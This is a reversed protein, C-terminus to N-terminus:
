TGLVVQIIKERQNFQRLFIIGRDTVGANPDSVYYRGEFGSGVGISHSGPARMTLSGTAQHQYGGGGDWVTLELIKFGDQLAM